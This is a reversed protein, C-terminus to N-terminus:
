NVIWWNFRIDVGASQDIAVTFGTGKQKSKVYLVQNNTSTLPTVYILSTDTVQTSLVTTELSGTLITASGITASTTATQGSPSSAFPEALSINLKSVTASGSATLDGAFQASGSADISLVPTNNLGNVLFKGFSSSSATKNLSISVDDLSPRITSIGLTGGVTLDGSVALDGNVAVNGSPDIVLIGAMIDVIGLKAKQLYLPEGITAIGNKDIM